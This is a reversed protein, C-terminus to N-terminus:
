DDDRWMHHHRHAAEWSYGIRDLGDKEAARSSGDWRPIDQALQVCRRHLYLRPPREAMAQHLQGILHESSGARKRPTLIRHLPTPVLISSAAVGPPPAERLVALVARKWAVNDRVVQHHAGVTARDGIWQDISELPIGASRIDSLFRRALSLYDAGDGVPDILDYAVLRRELGPALVYGTVGVRVRRSRLSHDIAGVLWLHLGPPAANVIHVGPDWADALAGGEYIPELSQGTRM